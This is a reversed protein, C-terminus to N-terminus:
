MLLRPYIRISYLSIDWNEDFLIFLRESQTEHVWIGNRDIYLRFNMFKIVFHIPIICYKSYLVQSLDFSCFLHSSCYQQRISSNPGVDSLLCIIHFLSSLISNILVWIFTIKMDNTIIFAYFFNKRNYRRSTIFCHDSVLCGSMEHLLDERKFIYESLRIRM